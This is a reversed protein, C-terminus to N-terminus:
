EGLEDAIVGEEDTDVQAFVINSEATPFGASTAL